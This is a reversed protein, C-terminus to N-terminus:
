SIIVHLGWNLRFHKKLFQWCAISNGRYLIVIMEEMERQRAEVENNLSIRTLAWDIKWKAQKTRQTPILPLFKMRGTHYKHFYYIPSRSAIHGPTLTMNNGVCVFNRCSDIDYFDPVIAKSKPQREM